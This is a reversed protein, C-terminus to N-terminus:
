IGHIVHVIIVMLLALAVAPHLWKYYRVWSSRVVFYTVFGTVVLIMMASYLVVGTGLVPYSSAPRTVEHIFHISIFTFGILNGFAHFKLLRSSARNKARKTLSYAVTTTLILISGAWGLWHIPTNAIGLINILIFPLRAIRLYVIFVALATALIIALAVWFSPRRYSM